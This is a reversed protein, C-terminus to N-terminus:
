TTTTGRRSCPRRQLDLRSGRTRSGSSRGARSTPTSSTAARGKSSTSRSLGCRRGPAPDQDPRAPRQQRALMAWICNRTHDAFILSGNYPAPYSGGTYFTDGTISSGNATPCNDGPVVADAHNYTYYPSAATGPRTSVPASTSIRARTARSPAPRGRLLALRLRAVSREHALEVRDIEEWTNAASTASGCSARARGSPSASRTGSATPSSGAHTPTRPAATRTAPAGRPGDGSRAPAGGREAAGAPREAPPLEPQPPGRGRRHAGDGDRRRRGPPRRVSEQGDALGRERGVPRLRRLQLERGRRCQPVPRRRPGFILDGISHSPFQQCWQDSILVQPSGTMTDGSLQIRVLKGTM